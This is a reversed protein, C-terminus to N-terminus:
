RLSLVRGVYYATGSVVEGKNKANSSVFSYQRPVVSVAVLKGLMDGLTMGPPLGIDRTGEVQAKSLLVKPIIRRDEARGDRLWITKADVAQVTGQVIM